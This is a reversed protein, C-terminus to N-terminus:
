GRDGTREKEEAARAHELELTAVRVADEARRVRRQAM